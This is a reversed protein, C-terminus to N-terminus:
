VLHGPDDDKLLIDFGASVETNAGGGRAEMWIDTLAPISLTPAMDHKVYGLVGDWYTILGKSRVPPTVDTMRLRVMLRFDSPKQGDSNMYIGIIQGTKGSPITYVGHQTQGDGASITLM